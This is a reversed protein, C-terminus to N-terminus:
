SQKLIFILSKQSTEVFRLIINKTKNKRKEKVCCINALM